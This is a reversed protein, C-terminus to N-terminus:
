RPAFVCTELSRRGLSVPTWQERCPEVPLRVLGTRWRWACRPLYFAQWLWRHLAPSRLFRVECGLIQHRARHVTPKLSVQYWTVDGVERQISDVFAHNGSASAWTTAFLEQTVGYHPYFDEFVDAADFFAIRPRPPNAANLLPLDGSWTNM